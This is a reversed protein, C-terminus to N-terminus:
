HTQVNIRSVAFSLLANDAGGYSSPQFNGAALTLTITQHGKVLTIPVASPQGAVIPLAVAPQAGVQVNILGRAGVGSPSQPDHLYVSTIQLQVTQAVPSDIELTAPSTAWCWKAEPTRWGQGFSLHIAPRPAVAYVTTLADDVVPQAGAFAVDLLQRAANYGRLFATDPPQTRDKHLVVYRYGNQALDDQFSAFAAIQGDVRLISMGASSTNLLADFIPHHAYTRSVYGGDIGKGHTMQYMQYISSTTQYALGYSFGAAPKIPLDFVGYQAPDSAIQQYFPPIPRLSEAPFPSPWIQLLLLAPAVILLPTRWRPLRRVLWALGCAASIGLGIVGVQMFRGPTRMFELGPLQRLYAYPLTITHGAILLPAGGIRLDPGLALIACLLALLLWPWVRRRDRALGLGALALGAWPLAVATEHSIQAAASDLHLISLTWQGFLASIRDPLVFQLLDPADPLNPNVAVLLAPDRSARLIAILLPACCVLGALGALAARLMVARRQGRPASLLTALGMVGCALSIYVFQYGNHLLVFLLALGTLLTWRLTHRLDLARRLALLALPLGATFSKTLHEPLGALTMPAAIVFCGAFLAVEPELGVDRALLFMAYGSLTLSVLLTGNFAAAPGWLWFPLAILGTVPGTSHTLLTTGLPYYLLPAEFLPQRGLLVQQTHWLLYLEHRADTGDSTLATTFHAVTPWSIVLSLAAYFLLAAVHESRRLIGLANSLRARLGHGSEIEIATM